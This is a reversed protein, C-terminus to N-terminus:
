HYFFCKERDRKRKVTKGENDDKTQAVNKGRHIKDVEKLKNMKNLRLIENTDNNNSKRRLTVSLIELSLALYSGSEKSSLDM